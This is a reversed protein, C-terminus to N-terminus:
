ADGVEDGGVLLRAEVVRAIEEREQGLVVDVRRRVRRRRIWRIPLLGVEVREDGVVGVLRVVHLVNHLPDDVVALEELDVLAVGLVDDAAERPEAAVRDAHDSVLRPREGAHEVDVRRHLGRAEDAGAVREVEREDREHVDRPKQGPGRLLPAPDDPV